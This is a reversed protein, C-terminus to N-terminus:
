REIWPRIQDDNSNKIATFGAGLPVYSYCIPLSSLENWLQMESHLTSFRTHQKRQM